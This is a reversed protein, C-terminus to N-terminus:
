IRMKEAVKSIDDEIGSFDFYPPSVAFDMVLIPLCSACRGVHQDGASYRKLYKDKVGVM